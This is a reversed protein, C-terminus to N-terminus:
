KDFQPIQMKDTIIFKWLVSATVHIYSVLSM